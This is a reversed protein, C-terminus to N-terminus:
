QIQINKFLINFITLFIQYFVKINYCVPLFISAVPLLLPNAANAPILVPATVYRIPTASSVVSKQHWWHSWRTARRVCGDPRKTSM